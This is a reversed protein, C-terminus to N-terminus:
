PSMAKNYSPIAILRFELLLIACKKKVWNPTFAFGGDPNIVHKDTISIM